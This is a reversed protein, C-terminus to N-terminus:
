EPAVRLSLTGVPRSTEEDIILGNYVGAPQSAPVRIRLTAPENGKPEEITVDTLRPKEAEVARLTQVLLRRGAADPRLDLDVETLQTSAVAIKMRAHDFASAAPKVEEAAAPPTERPPAAPRSDPPPVPWRATGGVTALQMVELWLAAFDSAYQALRTGVEQFDNALTDPGFSRDNIRQAARQGQRIYEDIVRYGLDVSRSVVDNVSTGREARGGPRRQSDADHPAPPVEFLTSWSRIPQTRELKPRRTREKASM